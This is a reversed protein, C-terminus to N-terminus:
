NSLSKLNSLFKNADPFKSIKELLEDLSDDQNIVFGYKKAVSTNTKQIGVALNTNSKIEGAIDLLENTYTNAVPLEKVSSEVKPEELVSVDVKTKTARKKTDVKVEPEIVPALIVMNNPKPEELEGDFQLDLSEYLKLALGSVLSGAKTLARKLANNVLNADLVKPATYGAGKVTADQIPYDEIVSKGLFTVKVRVMHVFFDARSYVETAQGDKENRQLSSIENKKSHVATGDNAYIIEFDADPDQEYLMRQMTAWPIYSGGKAATKIFHKLEKAQVSAESYNEKFQKLWKERMSENM